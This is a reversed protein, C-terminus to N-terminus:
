HYPWKDWWSHNWPPFGWPLIREGSTNLMTTSLRSSFIPYVTLRSSTKKGVQSLPTSNKWIRKICLLPWQSHVNYIMPFFRTLILVKKGGTHWVRREFVMKCLFKGLFYWKRWNKKTKNMVKWLIWRKWLRKWQHDVNQGNRRLVSMFRM